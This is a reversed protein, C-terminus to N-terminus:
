HANASKILTEAEDASLYRWPRPFIGPVQQRYRRYVEGHYAILKAEELRSGFIFYLSMMTASIVWLNDMNRTWILILALFYWPHRVYRHLPSLKFHEQDEVARIGLRFQRLGIFEQGDYYRLSFLFGALAAFSLGTQLWQWYGGWRWLLVGHGQANLWLPGALLVVALGNFILRYAPMFAPWITEVRHKVRISALLSHVVFYALWALILIGSDTTV